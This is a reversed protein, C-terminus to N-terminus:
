DPFVAPKASRKKRQSSPQANKWLQHAMWAKAIAGQVTDSSRIIQKREGIIEVKQGKSPPPKDREYEAAQRVTDPPISKGLKDKALRQVLPIVADLPSEDGALVRGLALHAQDEIDKPLARVQCRLVLRMVETILKRAEEQGLQKRPHTTESDQGSERPKYANFLKRAENFALLLDVKWQLIRALDDQKLLAEHIPHANLDLFQKVWDLITVPRKKFQSPKKTQRDLLPTNGQGQGIQNARWILSWGLKRAEHATRKEEFDGPPVEGQECAKRMLSLIFGMQDLRRIVHDPRSYLKENFYHWVVMLLDTELEAFSKSSLEAELAPDVM